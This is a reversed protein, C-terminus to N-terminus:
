YFPFCSIFNIIFQMKVFASTSHLISTTQQDLFSSDNIKLKSFQEQVVPIRDNKQLKFITTEYSDRIIM